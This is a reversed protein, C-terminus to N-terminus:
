TPTEQPQPPIIPPPPPVGGGLRAMIWDHAGHWHDIRAHADAAHGVMAAIAPEGVMHLRWVDPAAAAVSSHHQPLDDIFLTLSPQHDAVLQAVPGGKGGRSGIVPYYLGLRALQEVRRAQHEPGVNTLVVIDAHAGLAQMAAIAGDIPTQRPMEHTFFLDLLPWIEDGVLPTGCAKRTLAGVFDANEMQFAIDHDADLWSAFPGVMHLLVEDCDTVILPRSM